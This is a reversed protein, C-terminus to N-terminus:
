SRSVIWWITFEHGISCTEKWGGLLGKGAIRGMIPWIPEKSLGLASTPSTNSRYRWPNTKRESYWGPSGASVGL